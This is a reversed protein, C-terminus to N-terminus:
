RGWTKLEFMSVKSQGIQKATSQFSITLLLLGAIYLVFMLALLVRSRKPAGRFEHWIFVGWLAAVLPNSQGIAYALATGVMTMPVFTLTTGLGWVFGGFLGVGHQRHTGQVYDALFVPKGSFPHSMFYTMLPFTTVLAGSTFLFSVGYPSLPRPATLSKALLPGFGSFFFGSAVCIWLGSGPMEQRASTASRHALSNIVVASCVLTVGTFLLLPNGRPAVLYSGVVGLVLAMGISVPFAVTLGVSSVGAVLLINGINWLAGALLAFVLAHRDAALLNQWFTEGGLFTGLTLGVLMSTLFIGIAYDWYFLEFRWGPTLKCTNPWSGWCFMGLLMMALAVTYSSPLFM